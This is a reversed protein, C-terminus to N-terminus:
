NQYHMPPFYPATQYKLHQLAKLRMNGGIVVYKNEYPFAIIERLQLMEPDDEISKVLKWFKADKIVRPNAPLGPIQGTNFELDTLKIETANM